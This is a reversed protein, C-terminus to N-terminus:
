EGSKDALAKLRRYMEDLQAFRPYNRRWVRNEQLPLGSSYVGPESISRWIVSRGTVHVDDAIEIHGNVGVGGGLTCRKGVIVSGALAVTGAMATHEGVRCNHGIQIQNDLKVGCGIVTDELAGRDITTNAGIEVDDGILVTGLQPIKVWAGNDNALGFGDAGIVVGPHMLVRRGVTVGHCLTVKAVLRTGEGVVAGEGVVCGPGVLVRAALVAGAEVVAQPGVWATADVTARDSVWAAPHVGQPPEPEPNLALAARAYGLYPNDVVLAATPCADADRESLIVAAARVHALHKRYRPNSLFTVDGPGAREIVAIREIRSEGDGRLEAGIAQALDELSLSL